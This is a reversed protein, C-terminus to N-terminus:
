GEGKRQGVSASDGRGERELEGVQGEPPRLMVDAVTVVVLLLRLRPLPLDLRLSGTTLLVVVVVGATLGELETTDLGLPLSALPDVVLLLLVNGTLKAM